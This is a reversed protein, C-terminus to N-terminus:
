GTASSDFVASKSSRRSFSRSCSFKSRTSTKVRVRRPASRRWRRSTSRCSRRRVRRRSAYLESVPGDRLREIEGLAPTWKGGIILNTVVVEPTDNRVSTAFLTDFVAAETACLKQEVWSRDPPEGFFLGLHILRLVRRPFRNLTTVRNCVSNVDHDDIADALFAFQSEPPLRKYCIRKSSDNGFSRM